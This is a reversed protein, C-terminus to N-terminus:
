RTPTSYGSCLMALWIASRSFVGRSRNRTYQKERRCVCGGTPRCGACSRIQRPRAPQRSSSSDGHTRAPSPAAGTGEAIPHQAPGGTRCSGCAYRTVCPPRAPGRVPSGSGRMVTPGARRGAPRRAASASTTRCCRARRHAPEIHISGHTSASLLFIPSGFGGSASQSAICREGVIVMSVGSARPAVIARPSGASQLSGCAITPLSSVASAAPRRSVSACQSSRAVSPLTSSSNSLTM